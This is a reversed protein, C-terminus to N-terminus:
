SELPLLRWKGAWTARDLSVVPNKQRSLSSHITKALMLVSKDDTEKGPRILPRILIRRSVKKGKDAATMPQRMKHALVFATKYQCDLDRSLQLASHGKAGNVFIAIAALIDRLAM